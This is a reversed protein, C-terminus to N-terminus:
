TRRKSESAAALLASRRRDTCLSEFTMARAVPARQRGPAAWREGCRRKRRRTDEARCRSAHRGARALAGYESGPQEFFPSFYVIDGPGLPMRGLAEITSACMAPRMAAARRHRDDRDRQGRRGGGEAHQGRRGRRRGLGAQASVAAARRRREGHRHLGSAVGSRGTGGVRGVSKRGVDFADIFSFIGARGACARRM